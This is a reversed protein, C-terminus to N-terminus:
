FGQKWERMARMLEYYEGVALGVCGLSCKGIFLDKGEDTLCEIHEADTFSADVLKGIIKPNLDYAIGFKRLSLKKRASVPVSVSLKSVVPRSLEPIPIVPRIPVSSTPVPGTPVPKTTVPKTTVPRNTDSNSARPVYVIPEPRKRKRNNPADFAKINPPQHYTVERTGRIQFSLCGYTTCVLEFSSVCVLNYAWAKLQEADLPRCRDNRRLCVFGCFRCNNAAMLSEITEEEVIQDHFM